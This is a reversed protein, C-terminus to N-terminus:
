SRDIPQADTPSAFYRASMTHAESHEVQLLVEYSQETPLLLMLHMAEPQHPPLHAVRWAFRHAAEEGDAGHLVAESAHLDVKEPHEGRPGCTLMTISEPVAVSALTEPADKDGYNEFEVRVIVPHIGTISSGLELEVGLDMLIGGPLEEPDFGSLYILRPATLVPRRRRAEEVEGRTAREIELQEELHEVMQRSLVAEEAAAKATHEAASASRSSEGASRWAFWAALIALALSGLGSFVEVYDLWDRAVEIAAM